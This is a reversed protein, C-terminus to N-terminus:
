EKAQVSILMRTLILPNENHHFGPSGMHQGKKSLGPGLTTGPTGESSGPASIKTVARQEEERQEEM